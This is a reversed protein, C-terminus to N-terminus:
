LYWFGWWTSLNVVHHGSNLWSRLQWLESLQGWLFPFLHIRTNFIVIDLVVLMISTLGDIGIQLHSDSIVTSNQTYQGWGESRSNGWHNGTPATPRQVSTWWGWQWKGSDSFFCVKSEVLRAQKNAKLCCAAMDWMSKLLVKQHHSVAWSLYHYKWYKNINAELFVAAEQDRVDSLGISSFPRFSWSPLVFILHGRSKLLM